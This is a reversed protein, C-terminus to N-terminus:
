HDDKCRAFLEDCRWGRLPPKGCRVSLMVPSGDGSVDNDAGRSLSSTKSASGLGRADDSLRFPGPWACMDLRGVMSDDCSSIIGIGAASGLPAPAASSRSLGCCLPITTPAHGGQRSRQPTSGITNCAVGVGRRSCCNARLLAICPRVRARQRTRLRAFHANGPDRTQLQQKGLWPYTSQVPVYQVQMEPTELSAM